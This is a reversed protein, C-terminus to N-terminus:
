MQNNCIAKYFTDSGEIEELFKIKYTLKYLHTCKKLDEWKERSFPKNINERLIHVDPNNKPVSNVMENFAPNIEILLDMIYDILLYHITTDYKEWYAFLLELIDKIYTNGKKSYMFFTAWRYYSISAFSKCDVKISYFPYDLIDSDINSTTYITSDIWIGGHKYLLAYRIIDSFNTISIYGKEFKKIIGEPIECYQLYNTKDLEIIDYYRSCYKLLNERCKKVILPATEVGQWWFVWVTSVRKTSYTLNDSRDKKVLDPFSLKLFDLILKHQFKCCKESESWHLMIISWLYQLSFIIGFNKILRPLAFCSWLSRKISRIFIYPTM